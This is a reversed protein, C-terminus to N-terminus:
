LIVIQRKKKPICYFYLFLNFKKKKWNESEQPNLFAWFVVIPPKLKFFDYSFAILIFQKINIKENKNFSNFSNPKKLSKAM